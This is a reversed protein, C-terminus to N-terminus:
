NIDNTINVDTITGKGEEVYKDRVRFRVDFGALREYDFSIFNDRQGSNTTKVVAIGQEALAESCEFSRFHKNTKTAMNLVDLGSTDHWIFSVVVEFLENEVIDQTIPLYPSIITYTCFPFDPQDGSSNSEILPKNNSAKAIEKAVEDIFLRYDYSESM